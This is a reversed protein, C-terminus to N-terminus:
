NPRISNRLRDQESKRQKELLKNMALLQERQQRINDMLELRHERAIELALSEAELLEKKKLFFKLKDIQEDFSENM